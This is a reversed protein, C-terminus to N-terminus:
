LRVAVFRPGRTPTPQISFQRHRKKEHIARKKRAGSSGGRPRVGLGVGEAAAPRGLRWTTQAQRDPLLLWRHREGYRAQLAQLSHPGQALSM